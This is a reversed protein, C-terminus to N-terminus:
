FNASVKPFGWCAGFNFSHVYNHQWFVCFYLCLLLAVEWVNQMLFYVTFYTSNLPFCIAIDTAKLELIFHPKSENAFTEWVDLLEPPQPTASRDTWGHQATKKSSYHLRLTTNFKIFVELNSQIKGANKTWHWELLQYMGQQRCQSSLWNITNHQLWLFQRWSWSKDRALM